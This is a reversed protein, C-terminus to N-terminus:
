SPQRSSETGTKPSVGNLAQHNGGKVENESRERDRREPQEVPETGAPLLVEGFAPAVHERRIVEGVDVGPREPQRQPRLPLDPEHRLRLEEAWRQPGNELEGARELHPPAVSVVAAILVATSKARSPFTTAIKGSPVRRSFPSALRRRGRGCVPAARIASSASTGNIGAAIAPVSRSCGSRGAAPPRRAPRRAPRDRRGRSVCPPARQSRGASSRSRRARSCATFGSRTM